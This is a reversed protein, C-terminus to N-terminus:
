SPASKADGGGRVGTQGVQALQYRAYARLHIAHLGGVAAVPILYCVLDGDIIFFDDIEDPSYTKRERRSTSLYVKWTDAVRVTTTKVQVRRVVTQVCVLLDFRSPELPWSVSYGCLTFWAAALLSGARDLHHVDPRSEGCDTIASHANLHRFDLGLRAAHGKVLSKASGDRLGLLRTAESWTNATQIARRLEDETWRRGGRFHTYDVGLLDAHSRVSRISGASTALLGLERLVGRWSDSGAIARLLQEDSYTRKWTVGAGYTPVSVTNRRARVDLRDDGGIDPACCGRGRSCDQGM